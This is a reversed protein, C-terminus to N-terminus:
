YSCLSCYEEIKFFLPLIATIDGTVVYSKLIGPRGRALVLILRMYLRNYLFSSTWLKRLATLRGRKYNACIASVQRTGKARIQIKM